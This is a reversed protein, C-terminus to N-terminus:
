DDFRRSLIEGTRRDVVLEVERNSADRGEVEVLRDRVELETVRIGQANVRREIDALSLLPRETAPAQATPPAAAAAPAAAAPGAEAVFAPQQASVREAFIGFTAAGLAVIGAAGLAASVQKAPNGM